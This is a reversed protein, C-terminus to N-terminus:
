VNETLIKDWCFVKLQSRKSYQRASHAKKYFYTNFNGFPFSIHLTVAKLM